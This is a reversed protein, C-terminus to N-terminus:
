FQALSGAARARDLARDLAWAGLAALLLTSLGLLAIEPALTLLGAGRFLALRMGRLAHTLPLLGALFQLAPPLVEVPYFIGTLLGLGAGLVGAAADGRKVVLILATLFLGLAATHAVALALLVVLSVWNAQGWDVGFFLAGGALYVVLDLCGLLLPQVVGGLVVLWAPVPAVLLAELTGNRQETRIAQLTGLFGTSLLGWFAVGVLVFGFFSGGYASLAPARNGAVTQSLFFYMWLGSAVGVLQLVFAFRYSRATRLDRRLFALFQYGTDGM